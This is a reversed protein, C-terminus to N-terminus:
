LDKKPTRQPSRRPSRSRGRGGGGDDGDGDGGIVRIDRKRGKKAAAQKALFAEYETKDIVGDGDADAMEYVADTMEAIEAERAEDSEELEVEGAISGGVFLLSLMTLAARVMSPELECLMPVCHEWDEKKTRTLPELASFGISLLMCLLTPTAPHSLQSHGTQVDKQAWPESKQLLSAEIDHFLNGGAGALFGGLVAGSWLAPAAEVEAIGTATVPQQHRKQLHLGVGWWICRVNALAAAAAVLIRLSVFARARKSPLDIHYNMLLFLGDSWNVLMVCALSFELERQGMSDVLGGGGALLCCLLPGFLCELSGCIGIQWATQREHNSKGDVRRCFAVHLAYVVVMVDEVYAGQFLTSASMDMQALGLNEALLPGPNKLKREEASERLYLALSILASVAVVVETSGKM